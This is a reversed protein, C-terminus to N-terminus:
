FNFNEKLTEKQDDPALVFKSKTIVKFTKTGWYDIKVGQALLKKWLLSDKHANCIFQDMEKGRPQERDIYVTNVTPEKSEKDTILISGGLYGWGANNIFSLPYFIYKVDTNNRVVLCSNKNADYVSDCFNLTVGKPTCSLCMMFVILLLIQKM